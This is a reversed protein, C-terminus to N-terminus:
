LEIVKSAYQRIKEEYPTYNFTTKELLCKEMQMALEHENYPDFYLARDGAQEVHVDINSLVVTQEMAKADEVVTSWGEFLSPQIVARADKMLRLQEVRDIFGLFRVYESIGNEAIYNKLTSLYEFGRNDQEKGTFIVQYKLQKNKLLAIAKLIIIHNKHAWFQNPSFFYTSTIGFGKKLDDVNLHMFGPLVSAFRIVQLSCRQHPFFKLFDAKANESSLVLKENMNALKDIAHDRYILDDQKFFRPLHKHQFDPIWYIKRLRKLSNYEHNFSYDCPFVFDVLSRSYQPLFSYEKKFLGLRNVVRVFLNELFNYSKYFPLYTLYPYMGPNVKEKIGEHGYLIVLEPKQKDDLRNLANIINLLYYMGGAWIEDYLFVLGIRKRKAM